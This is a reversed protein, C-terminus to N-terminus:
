GVLGWGFVIAEYIGRAALGGAIAAVAVVVAIYVIGLLAKM